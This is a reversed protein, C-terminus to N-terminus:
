ESSRAAMPTQLSANITAVFNSIRDIPRKLTTFGSRTFTITYAGPPLDQMVYQGQANSIAARRGIAGLGFAEVMVGSLAHGHGDVVQGTIWM